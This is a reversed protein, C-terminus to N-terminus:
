LEMWHLDLGLGVEAAPFAGAARDFHGGVLVATRDAAVLEGPATGEVPVQDPNDEKKEGQEENGEEEGQHLMNEKLIYRYMGRSIPSPLFSVHTGGKGRFRVPSCGM